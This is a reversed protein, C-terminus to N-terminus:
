SENAFGLLLVLESSYDQGARARALGLSAVGEEWILFMPHVLFM